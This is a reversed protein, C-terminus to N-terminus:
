HELSHIKYNLRNLRKLSLTFVLANVGLIVLLSNKPFVKMCFPISLVMFVMCFMLMAKTRELRKKIQLQEM